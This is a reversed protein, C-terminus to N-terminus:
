QYTFFYETDLDELFDVFFSEIKTKKGDKELYVYGEVGYPTHQKYHTFILKGENIKVEKYVQEPYTKSTYESLAISAIVFLVMCSLIIGIVKAVKILKQNM